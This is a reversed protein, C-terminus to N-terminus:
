FGRQRKAEFILIAAAVSVNMSDIEGQMPIIINQTANNRWEQTLGTAETGVVLATPPTYDQTHYPTANQLTACYFNIKNEKLYTIIEQTTGTAIQTTFLCGVSSRVINPNYLDSKPNAIIVADLNAADATRLLAGINGPKEPAEAILILPTQSLKLDSLLFPKTKAVALIGETTDRYALKQYVEKSIEIIDHAQNTIQTIQKQSILDPLFLITEIVFGGKQALEIERHGEILFTGSKKRAKSKEQLLVLSKIYPNQSSTIQKM